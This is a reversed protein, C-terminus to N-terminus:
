EAEEVAAELVWGLSGGALVLFVQVDEWGRRVARTEVVIGLSNRDLRGVSRGSARQLSPDSWLYVASAM